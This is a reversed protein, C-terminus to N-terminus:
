QIVVIKWPSDGSDYWDAVNNVIDTAIELADDASLHESIEMQFMTVNDVIRVVLIAKM